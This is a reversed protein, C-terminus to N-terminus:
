SCKLGITCDFPTGRMGYTNFVNKNDYFQCIRPPISCIRKHKHIYEALLELTDQTKIPICLIVKTLLSTFIYCMTIHWMRWYVYVLKQCIGMHKNLYEKPLISINHVHPLMLNIECCINNERASKMCTSCVNM